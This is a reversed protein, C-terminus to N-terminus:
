RALYREVAEENWDIGTGPEDRITAKGDVIALPRALIPAAWDVYELWHRTPTAAMLHVSVEPFLHTSIPMGASEGLAAAQMWGTVGGIKMADPMGFDSAGSALCASMEGPGWWNEGMQIPTTSAARVRAHGAYDHALCPEEIWALGEGALARVRKEAEPVSLAQNYDSMLHVGDGIAAKVARVVALDTDVDPYGLRVKIASFGARVLHGAEAPAREAGILGLGCSNYARVGVLDAGLVRALPQGAAHALADWAAMDIGALAMGVIGSDGLLRFRARLMRNLELPAVAVGKLLAELNRLLDCVPKLVLPTYCFLYTRGTVGENTHLDILALPAIGVTGGSTVLPLNMPVQVARIDLRSLTLRPPTSM